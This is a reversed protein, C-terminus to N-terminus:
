EDDSGVILLSSILNSTTNAIGDDLHFKLTHNHKDLCHRSNLFRVPRRIKTATCGNIRRQRERTTVRRKACIRRAFLLSKFAALQKALRAALQTALQPASKYLRSNTQATLYPSWCLHLWRRTCGGKYATSM